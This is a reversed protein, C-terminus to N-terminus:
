LNEATVHFFLNPVSACLVLPQSNEIIEKLNVVETTGGSISANEAFPVGGIFVSYSANLPSRNSVTINNILKASNYLPIYAPANRGWAGLTATNAVTQTSSLYTFTTSTPVALIRSGLTSNLKTEVSVIENVALGHAVETTITALYNRVCVNTVNGGSWTTNFKLHGNPTQAGPSSVSANSYELTFGFSVDNAPEILRKTMLHTGDITSDVGNIILLTGAASLNHFTSTTLTQVNSSSAANTILLSQTEGIDTHPSGRFITQM